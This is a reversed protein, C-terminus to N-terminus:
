GRGTQSGGFHVKWARECIDPRGEPCQACIVKKSRSRTGLRAVKNAHEDVPMLSRPRRMRCSYTAFRALAAASATVVGYPVRLELPRDLPQQCRVKRGTVAVEFVTGEGLTCPSGTMYLIQGEAAM